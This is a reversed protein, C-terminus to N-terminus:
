RRVTETTPKPLTDSGGVWGWGGTDTPGTAPERAPADMLLYTDVGGWRQLLHYRRRLWNDPPKSPLTIM